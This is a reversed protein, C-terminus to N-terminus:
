RGKEWVIRTKDNMIGQGFLFAKDITQEKGMVYKMYELVLTARMEETTMQDIYKGNELLEAFDKGPLMEDDGYRKTLMGLYNKIRDRLEHHSLYKFDSVIRVIEEPQPLFPYEIIAKFDKAYRLLGKYIHKKKVMNLGAWGARLWKFVGCKVLPMDGDTEYLVTICFSDYLYSKVWGLGSINLGEQGSYLYNWDEDPGLVLGKKGVNSTDIQKSLSIFVNRGKHKLLILARDVDYGYYSGTFLDPANAEHEVGKVIVPRNLGPLFNWLRPLAQKRGEIESWYSLRLTSPTFAYPPIDPNYAYMLIRNLNSHIDFDHYASTAGLRKDEYYISSSDKPSAVFDLFKEILRIDLSDKNVPSVLTLLHDLGPSLDDPIKIEKIDTGALCPTSFFMVVTIFLACYITKKVM